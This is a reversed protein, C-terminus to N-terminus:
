RDTLAMWRPRDSTDEGGGRLASREVVIMFRIAIADVAAASMKVDKENRGAEPSDAAAVDASVCFRNVVQSSLPIYAAEVAEVGKDSYTGAVQGRSRRTTSALISANSRRQAADHGSTTKSIFRDISRM